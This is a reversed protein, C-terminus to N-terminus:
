STTGELLVIGYLPVDTLTIAYRDGRRTMTGRLLECPSHCSISTYDGDLRVSLELTPLPPVTDTVDDYDYRILHIAAGREVSVINIALDPIGTHIVQPEAEVNGVVTNIHELIRRRTDAALNEGLAGQVVVKGGGELYRIIANAQIETLFHCAPLFVTRYQGLDLAAEADPRLTGDPFMQVDFPQRTDALSECVDWFPLRAAAVANETNNAIEELRVGGYFNSEISYIVATDALSRTSYRFENEALFQQIEVCLEHPAYFADEQVSGMWSGYPVSMNVGLAAAEYLSMRYLDYGNGRQLKAVLDPVIGGYPNEVVLVPKDGAFGRV